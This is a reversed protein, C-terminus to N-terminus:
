FNENSFVKEPFQLLKENRMCKKLSLFCRRLESQLLSRFNFAYFELQLNNSFPKIWYTELALRIVIRFNQWEYTLANGDLRHFLNFHLIMFLVWFSIFDVFPSFLVFLWLMLPSRHTCFSLFTVVAM